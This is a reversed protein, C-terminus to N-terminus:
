NDLRYDSWDEELGQIHNSLKKYDSCDVYDSQPSARSIQEMIGKAVKLVEQIYLEIKIPVDILFREGSGSHYFSFLLNESDNDIRLDIKYADDMFECVVKKERLLIRMDDVWWTIVPIVFDEWSSNPYPRGDVSVYLEDAFSLSKTSAQWAAQIDADRINVHIYFNSM